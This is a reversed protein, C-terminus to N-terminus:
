RSRASRRLAPSPTRARREASRRPAQIRRLGSRYAAPSARSSTAWSTGRCDGNGPQRHDSRRHEIRAPVHVRAQEGCRGRHRVPEDDCGHARHEVRGAHLGNREPQGHSELLDRRRRGREGDDHRRAHRGVHRGRAHADGRRHVRKGHRGSATQAVITVPKRADCRSTANAPQATVTLKTPAISRATETYTVPSGALTGVSATVTQTGSRTASGGTSRHSPRRREDRRDCQGRFRRREHRRVDRDRRGSWARRERRRVRRAPERAHEGRPRDSRLRVAARHNDAAAARELTVQDHPGTLLQAVIRAIGRTSGALATGSAASPISAISPDLSNWVIPTNPM